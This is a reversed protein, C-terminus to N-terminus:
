VRKQLKRDWCKWIGSGSEALRNDGSVKPHVHQHVGGQTQQIILMSDSRITIELFLSRSFHCTGRQITARGRAAGIGRGRM